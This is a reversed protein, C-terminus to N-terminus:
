ACLSHGQPWRLDSNDSSYITFVTGLLPPTLSGGEVPGIACIAAQRAFPVLQPGALPWHPPQQPPHPKPCHNAAPPVHHPLIPGPRTAQLASGPCPHHSPSALASVDSREGGQDPSPNASPGSHKGPQATSLM